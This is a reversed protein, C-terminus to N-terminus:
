ALAARLAAVDDRQFQPVPADAEARLRDAEDLHLRTTDLDGRGLAVSALVTHDVASAALSDRRPDIRNAMRPHGRAAYLDLAEAAMSAAGADDGRLRRVVAAGTLAHVLAATHTLHRALDLAREYAAEARDLEGVQLLSWGLRALTASNFGRIGLEDNLRVAQELGAVAAAHHGSRDDFDAVAALSMSLMMPRDTRSFGEAADRYHREAAVLDGELVALKGRSYARAPVTFEDEPRSEHLGLAEKRRRIAEETDGRTSAVETYFGHALTVGADDDLAQFRELAELLDDDVAAQAGTQFGL